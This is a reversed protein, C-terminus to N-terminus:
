ARLISELGSPSAWDRGFVFRPLDWRPSHLHLPEARTGFAAALRLERSHRPLYDERLFDNSEGYPYAFLAAGPNPARLKLYRAAEGIEQEALAESDICTFGGRPRDGAPLTDHNHDWSHNGVHMYGSRVAQQWWADNWWGRGIMCTRDLEGRAQPSAIVFSTIHAGFGTRAHHERLVSLVSRQRGAIPHDLDHFDFDSGDDCSLGVVRGAFFSADRRIFAEVIRALPEIRMSLADIAELDQALAVLDNEDYARGHIRM